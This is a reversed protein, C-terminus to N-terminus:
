NEKFANNIVEAWVKYGESNLHVGDSVFYRKNSYNEGEVRFSSSVDLFTAYDQEECLKKIIGEAEILKARRSIRNEEKDLGLDSAQPIYAQGDETPMVISLVVVETEPLRMHIYNLLEELENACEAATVDANYIENIGTHLIIRFPEMPVVLRDVYFDTWYFSRSGGMGVNFVDGINLASKYNTFNAVLSDGILLTGGVPENIALKEYNDALENFAAVPSINKLETININKEKEAGALNYIIKLISTNEDFSVSIIEGNEPIEYEMLQTLNETNKLRNIAIPPLFLLNNTVKFKCVSIINLDTLKIMDEKESETKDSFDNINDNKKCGCFMTFIFVFILIISLIYKFMNKGIKM